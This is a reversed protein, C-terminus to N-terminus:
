KMSLFWQLSALGFPIIGTQHDVGPMVTFQVKDQSVGADTFEQMMKQSMELPVFTDNQGHYLHTPTTVNWATISNKTFADRISQYKAETQFGVRYDSNLLDSISATLESNIQGGTNVGNFLGPIKSAYPEAFIDSLPNSFEGHIHYADMLFALFYPMPYSDQSPILFNLYNLDYPGAGCSSAKLDYGDLGKTEIEHQLQMTAWGGQSYGMIYLDSNLSAAIEDQGVFEQTAKLIDVLSPVTNDAELYPHFVQESEGFGPYDPIVVIYGMSSVSELLTFLNSDFDKSPAKAYEVNTGNQFCLVPYTGENDPVCVLGSVLLASDQFTTYYTIKYVTVNSGVEAAMGSAVDYQSALVSFYVQSIGQSITKVEEGSKFYTFQPEQPVPDNNNCSAFLLGFLLALVVTKKFMTRNQSKM